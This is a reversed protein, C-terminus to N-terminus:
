NASLAYSNLSFKTPARTYSVEFGYEIQNVVQTSQLWGKSVAWKLVAAM